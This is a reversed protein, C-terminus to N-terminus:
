AGADAPATEAPMGQGAEGGPQLSEDDSMVYMLMAALMLAVVAWAWISKHIPKRKPPTHSHQHHDHHTMTMFSNHHFYGADM